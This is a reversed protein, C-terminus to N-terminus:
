DLSELCISIGKSLDGFLELIHSVRFRFLQVGGGRRALDGERVNFPVDIKNDLNHSLFVNFYYEFGM